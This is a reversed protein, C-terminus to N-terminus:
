ARSDVREWQLSGAGAFYLGDADPEHMTPRITAHEGHAVTLVDGTFTLSIRQGHRSGLDASLHELTRRTFRPPAGPRRTHALAPYVKPGIVPERVCVPRWAKSAGTPLSTFGAKHADAVFATIAQWALDRTAALLRVADILERGNSTLQAALVTDTIDLATTFGAAHAAARMGTTSVYFAFDPRDTHLTLGYWDQMWEEITTM